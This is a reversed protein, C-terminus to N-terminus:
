RITELMAFRPEALASTADLRRLFSHDVLRGLGDIVELDLEGREPSSAVAEAADLTFGGAFVALRRFLTQEQPSLLEHSWAITWRLTQQREPLDSAGGTLLPLRRELRARLAAPHLVRVRAAALELALPLGDLRRCIEAVAVGNDRSLAFGASASEARAVFLEIAEFSALDELPLSRDPSPLALPPVSFDREGSVRLVVRSTVLVKVKPCAALIDAVAPGAGLVGEFSDLVLLLQQDRLAAKLDDRPSKGSSERVGLAQAIAPLVLDPDGAGDLGVFRVGEAFDDGLAAAVHLALRTKGIGGPGTLTLLRVAASRVLAIV